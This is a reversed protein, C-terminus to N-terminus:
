YIRITKKRLWGGRGLLFSLLLLLTAALGDGRDVQDGQALQHGGQVVALGVKHAAKDGVGVLLGPLHLRGEDHVLESAVADELSDPDAHTSEGVPLLFPNKRFHGFKGPHKVGIELHAVAAETLRFESGAGVVLRGGIRQHVLVGKPPLAVPKSM